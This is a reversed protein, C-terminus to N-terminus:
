SRPSHGVGGYHQLFREWIKRWTHGTYTLFFRLLKRRRADRIRKLLRRAAPSSEKELKKELRATATGNTPLGLIHMYAGRDDSMGTVRRSPDLGFGSDPYKGPDMVHLLRPAFHPFRLAEELVRLAGPQKGLWTSTQVRELFLRLAKLVEASVTGGGGGGGGGGLQLPMPTPPEEGGLKQSLRDFADREGGLAREVESETKTIFSKLTTLGEGEVARATNQGVDFPDEIRLEGAVLLGGRANRVEGSLVSVERRGGWLGNTEAARGYLRFFDVLLTAFVCEPHEAAGAAAAADSGGMWERLRDSIQGMGEGDADILRSMSPLLGRRQMVHMCLLGISFSNLTHKRASNCGAASFLRKMVVTFRRYEDCREAVVGLVASKYVGANRVCVDVKVSTKLDRLTLVPIRAGLCSTDVEVFGFKCATNDARLTAALAKLLGEDRKGEVKFSLDLDSGPGDM